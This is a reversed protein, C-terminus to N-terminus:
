GETLAGLLGRNDAFWVREGAFKEAIANWPFRVVMQCSFRRGTPDTGMWPGLHAATMEAVAVVGQPGIVLDTALIEADPFADFFGLYFRRAGDLGTWRQGTPIIEYCCDPVLTAVLGDVNRDLEAKSHEIWLRRIAEYTESSVPESLQQRLHMERDM